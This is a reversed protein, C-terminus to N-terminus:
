GDYILQSRCANILSYEHAAALALAAGRSSSFNLKDTGNRLRWLGGVLIEMDPMGRITSPWSTYWRGLALWPAACGACRLLALFDFCGSCRLTRRSHRLHRRSTHPSLVPLAAPMMAASTVQASSMAHALGPQRTGSSLTPMKAPM